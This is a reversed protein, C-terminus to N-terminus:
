HTTHKIKTKTEVLNQSWVFRKQAWVFSAFASCVALVTAVMIWRVESSAWVTLAFPLSLVVAWVELGYGSSTGHNYFLQAARTVDPVDPNIGPLYNSYYWFITCIPKFDYKDQRPFDVPQYSLFGVNTNLILTGYLVLDLWESRLATIFRQWSAYNILHDTNVLQLTQLYRLPLNFLLPSSLWVLVHSRQPISGYVSEGNSLRPTKEGHFNYFRDLAFDLVAASGPNMKFGTPEATGPVPECVMEKVVTLMRFLREVPFQQTTRLSSMANAVIQPSIPMATPFYECHVWYEIELCMKAHSPADIGPIQNWNELASMNFAELWFIIRASHDVFYYGCEDNDLSETMLDLVIDIHSSDTSLLQQVEARALLQDVASTIQVFAAPDYLYADTFIRQEAHVFYLGGEPHREAIWHPLSVRSFSRCLPPVIYDLSDRKLITRRRAYRQFSEPSIPVLKQTTPPNAEVGSGSTTITRSEQGPSKTTAHSQETPSPSKTPLDQMLRLPLSSELTPM